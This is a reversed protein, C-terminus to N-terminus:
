DSWSQGTIARYATMTSVGFKAAIAHYPASTRAREARMEQVHARTLKAMPSKEGRNTAGHAIRDAENAEHTDWRLNLADNNHRDGDNHCCEKGPPCPGYFAEAVLRHVYRSQFRGSADKLQIGRYNGMKGGKLIRPKNILSLVEGHAGIRYEPFDPIGLWIQGPKVLGLQFALLEKNPEGM